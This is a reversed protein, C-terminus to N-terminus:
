SFRPMARGSDITEGDGFRIGNERSEYVRMLKDNRKRRRPVYGLDKMAWGFSRENGMTPDHQGFHAKCAEFTIPEDFLASWSLWARVRRVAEESLLAPSPENPAAVQEFPIESLEGDKNKIILELDTWPVFHKAKRKANAIANHIRLRTYDEQTM